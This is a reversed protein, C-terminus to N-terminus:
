DAACVTSIGMGTYAMAENRLVCACLFFCSCLPIRWCPCGSRQELHLTCFHQCKGDCGSWVRGSLLPTRTCPATQARVQQWAGVMGSLLGDM